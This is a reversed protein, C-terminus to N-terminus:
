KSSLLQLINDLEGLNDYAITVFKKNNDIKINLNSKEKILAELMTIDEDKQSSSTTIYRPKRVTDLQTSPSKMRKILTEAQRVNLNNQIIKDAIEEINDIGILIKAHGLTIKEEKLLELVTAPLLLLRLINAIHSRSKGVVDSIDNQSYSYQDRLAQYAKAEEVINLDQRQVNEIISLEFANTDSVEKLIIPVTDLGALSAARYRREGAIIELKEDARKRVLIPSIVGNKRISSTLEELSENDFHKRPQNENSCVDEIRAHTVHGNYPKELLEDFDGKCILSSLGRGLTKGKKTM